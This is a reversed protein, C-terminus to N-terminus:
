FAKSQRLGVINLGTLMIVALAAYISGSFRGLLVLQTAYDAFIFALLAISGTQVVTMRAWAYMFGFDRGYALHYEGGPHPHTSVLEAFCLAGILSIVGGAVWVTVVMWSADVNGAVLSPLRFIGAGVVVGVIMAVADFQSLLPQPRGTSCRPM